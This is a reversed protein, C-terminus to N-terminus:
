SFAFLSILGKLILFAALGILVPFPLIASLGFILLIGAAIDIWSFYNMLFLLGKLILVVSVAVVMGRPVDLQYFNALFLLGALIDVFGLSKVM